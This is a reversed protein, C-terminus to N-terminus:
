YKEHGPHPCSVKGTAPDYTYPEKGIPCRYFQEGIRIDQLTPPPEEANVQAVQIGQRCSALNQMCVKDVAALRAQGMVTAGLKDKRQYKADRPGVGGYFLVVGLIAIIVMAAMVSVMTM